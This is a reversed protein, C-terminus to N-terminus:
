PRPRAAARATRFDIIEDLFREAFRIIRPSVGHFPRASEITAAWSKADARKTFTKSVLPYGRRRVRVEWQYDGRKRFSAM